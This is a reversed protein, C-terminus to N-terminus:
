GSGNLVFMECSEEAALEIIDEPCDLSVNAVKTSAVKVTTKAFEQSLCM